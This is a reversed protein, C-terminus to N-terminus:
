AGTARRLPRRSWGGLELIEPLHARYRRQFVELVTNLYGRLENGIREHHSDVRANKGWRPPDPDIKSFDWRMVFYHHALPTPDAGIALDGFLLEHDEATRLDYYGELVSLFLSKGFRRPRLFLLADDLEELMPIRDTRDVYLQGLDRIRRFDAVGYPIKM